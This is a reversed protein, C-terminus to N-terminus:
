NVQNEPTMEGSMIAVDHTWQATQNYKLGIKYMIKIVWFSSAVALFLNWIRIRCGLFMYKFFIFYRKIIGIFYSFVTKITDYKEIIDYSRM